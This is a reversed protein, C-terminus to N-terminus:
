CVTTVAGCGTFFIDGLCIAVGDVCGLKPSFPTLPVSPNVYNVMKIFIPIAENMFVGNDKAYKFAQEATPALPLYKKSATSSDSCNFLTENNGQPCYEGDETGGTSNARFSLYVLMDIPMMM